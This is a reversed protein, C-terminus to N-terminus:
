VREDHHTYSKGCDYLFIFTRRKDTFMDITGPPEHRQPRHEGNGGKGIHYLPPHILTGRHHQQVQREHHYQSAGQGSVEKGASTSDSQSRSHRLDYIYVFIMLHFVQRKGQRQLLEANDVIRAGIRWEVVLTDNEM